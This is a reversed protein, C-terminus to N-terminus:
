VTAAEKIDAQQKQLATVQEVVVAVRPMNQIARITKQFLAEGVMTNSISRTEFPAGTILEGGGAMKILGPGVKTQGRGSIPEVTIREVGGPNDGVMLLTPGKTLFKGGGAAASIQGISDIASKITAAISLGASVTNIGVWPQGFTLPSAAVAKANAAGTNSVIQAIAAARSAIVSVVSFEKGLNSTGSLAAALGMLSGRRVEDAAVTAKVSKEYNRNAEISEDILDIEEERLIILDETQKLKFNQDVELQQKNIEDTLIKRQRERELDVDSQKSIEKQLNLIGNLAETRKGQSDEQIDSIEFQVNKIQKQLELNDKDLALQIQLNALREKQTNVLVQERVNIYGEVQKAAEMRDAFSKKDDDRLRRLVEAQDLAKKAVRKSDLELLELDKLANSANRSIIGSVGSTAGFIRFNFQDALGTLLGGGKGDAGALKAIDNSITRFSSSLTVQASDLDRAGAASSLYATALAGGLVGATAMVPNVGSIASTLQGFGPIAKDLSATLKTSAETWKDTQTKVGTLDKQVQSYKASTVKLVNETRVLEKVYEDQSIVGKKVADALDKQEQKLLLLARKLAEAKQISGKEEIDIEYIIKDKEDAM